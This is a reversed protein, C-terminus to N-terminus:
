KKGKPQLYESVWDIFRKEYFIVKGDVVSTAKIINDLFIWNEKKEFFSQVPEFEQLSKLEELYSYDDHNYYLQRMMNNYISNLTNAILSTNLEKSINFIKKLAKVQGIIYDSNSSKFFLNEEKNRTLSKPNDRWIYTCETISGVKKSSNIAVCNFYSDENLRIDDLFRIDNERLYNLKYIKGHCWTVPTNSIELLHGPSAKEELIFNSILVDFDNKKAEQYLIEIARPNLIDDSDLFMVYDCMKTRDIGYQRAPGPGGNEKQLLFLKLGREKYKKIIDSYDEGDGDQVITVLFMEKTQAVLSDLAKPLTDRARYTPIIINLM